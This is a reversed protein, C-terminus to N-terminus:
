TEEVLISAIDKASTPYVEPESHVQLNVEWVSYVEDGPAIVGYYYKCPYVSNTPVSSIETITYVLLNPPKHGPWTVTDGISFKPKSV